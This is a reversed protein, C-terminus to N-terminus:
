EMAADYRGALATVTDEAAERAEEILAGVLTAPGPSPVASLLARAVDRSPLWDPFRAAGPRDRGTRTLLVSRLPASSLVRERLSDDDLLTAFARWLLRGRLNLAVAVVENMATVVLSLAFFVLIVAIAIDVYISM